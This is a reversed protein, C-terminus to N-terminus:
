SRAQPDGFSVGGEVRLLLEVDGDDERRITGGAAAAVHELPLDERDIAGKEPLRAHRLLRVARAHDAAFPAARGIVFVSIGLTGDRLYRPMRVGSCGSRSRQVGEGNKLTRRPRAGRRARRM